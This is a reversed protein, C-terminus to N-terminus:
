AEVSEPRSGIELASSRQSKRLHSTSECRWVKDGCEDLGEEQFLNTKAPQGPEFAM